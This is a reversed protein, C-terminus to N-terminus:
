HKEERIMKLQDDISMSSIKTSVTNVDRSEVISDELNSRSCTSESDSTEHPVDFDWTEGAMNCSKNQRIDNCLLKKIIKNKTPIESKLFKIERELNTILKKDVVTQHKEQNHM